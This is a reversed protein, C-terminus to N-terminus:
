HKLIVYDSPKNGVLLRFYERKRITNTVREVKGQAIIVEGIRAQECFRGRFSAIEEIHGVSPGELVQVNGIKYICPTFVSESDDAVTAEIRANGVNVYRVDGYKEKVENWDKVFRVFYDRGLFKGQMVKRSETRVFDEFSMMTDKSRFDFLAKLEERSYPKFRGYKDELLDGLAAHVKRCNRSGYVVPDIDSSATYLGALISGSIGIANSTLSAQNNLSEALKLAIRETPDLKESSRLKGLKEIPDFHKQVDKEPVECLTEDLVPDHAIYQPLKKELFRYRASLSYIKKFRQGKRERDGLPEPIYRPFAVIRHPPHILGKVDFIIDEKIQVLDGERTRIEKLM